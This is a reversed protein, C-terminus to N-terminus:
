LLYRELATKLRKSVSPASYKGNDIWSPSERWDGTLRLLQDHLILCWRDDVPFAMYLDKGIYSKSITVRSKLQVKLIQGDKHMALFDAGNYDDSLLIGSFGYDALLASVKHYNYNEKQKANLKSYEIRELKMTNGETPIDEGFVKSAKLPETPTSDAAKILKVMDVYLAVGRQAGNYAKAAGSVRITDNTMIIIDKPLAINDVDVLTPQKTSKMTMFVRGAYQPKGSADGSKLPCHLNPPQTAGFERFAADKIVAELHGVIPDDKLFSITVKYKHDSYESGTDPESLWAFHATGATTTFECYLSKDTTDTM